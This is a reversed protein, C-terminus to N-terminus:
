GTSSRGSGGPDASGSPNNGAGQGGGGLEGTDGPTGSGQDLGAGGGVSDGITRFGRAHRSVAEQEQPSLQDRPGVGSAGPGEGGASPVEGGGDGSEADDRDGREERAEEPKVVDENWEASGRADPEGKRTQPHDREIMKGDSNEDNTM